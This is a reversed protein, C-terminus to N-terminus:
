KKDHVFHGEYETNTKFNKLKGFGHFQDAHFEGEYEAVGKLFYEGKGEKMGKLFGGKYRM